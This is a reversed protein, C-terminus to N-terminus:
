AHKLAMRKQDPGATKFVHYRCLTSGYIHTWTTESTIAQQLLLPPYDAMKKKGEPSGKMNRINRLTHSTATM